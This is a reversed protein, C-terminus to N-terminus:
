IKRVHYFMDRMEGIWKALGFLPAVYLLDKEPKNESNKIEKKVLYVQYLFLIFGLSSGMRILKRLIFRIKRSFKFKTQNSEDENEEREKDEKDEKSNEETKEINNDIKETNEKKTCFQKKNNLLFKYFDAKSSSLQKRNNFVTNKSTNNQTKFSFQKQMNSSNFSVLAEKKSSLSIAFNKINFLGGYPKLSHKILLCKKM